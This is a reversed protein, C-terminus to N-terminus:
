RLKKGFTHGNEGPITANVSHFLPQPLPAPPPRFEQFHLRAALEDAPWLFQKRVLASISDQGQVRPLCAM